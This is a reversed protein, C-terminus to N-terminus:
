AISKAGGDGVFNAYVPPLLSADMPKVSLYDREKQSM